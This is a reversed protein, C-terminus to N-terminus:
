LAIIIININAVMNTTITNAGIVIMAWSTWFCDPLGARVLITRIGELVDRNAREVVANNQPVGPMCTRSIVKHM